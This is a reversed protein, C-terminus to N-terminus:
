GASTWAGSTSKKFVLLEGNGLSPVNFTGLPLQLLHRAIARITGSHAVIVVASDTHRGAIDDIAHTVMQESVRLAEPTGSLLERFDACLQLPVGLSEAIIQATERARKLDSSYVRVIQRQRLVETLTAAQKRGAESISPDDDGASNGAETRM